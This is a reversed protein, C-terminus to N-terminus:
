RRRLYYILDQEVTPAGLGHLMALMQARHDTGHNAVHMLLIGVPQTDPKGTTSKYVLPQMLADETLTALYGRVMSEVEDWKARVDARTPYDAPNLMATPNAGHMRSFWIWEASLTHVVQHHISGMSYDLPRTFQEDTLALISKDWVLRHAWYTYDYMIRVHSLLSM